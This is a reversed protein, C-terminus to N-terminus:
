RQCCWVSNRYCSVESIWLYAINVSIIEQISWLRYLLYIGKSDMKNFLSLIENRLNELVLLIGSLVVITLITLLRHWLPLPSNSPFGSLVSFAKPFSLFIGGIMEPQALFESWALELGRKEWSIYFLWSFLHSSSPM